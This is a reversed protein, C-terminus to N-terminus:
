EVLAEVDIAYIGMNVSIEKLVCRRGSVQLKSLEQESFVCPHILFIKCAFVGVYNGTAFAM